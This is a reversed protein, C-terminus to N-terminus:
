AGRVSLIRNIQMDKDQWIRNVWNQMGEKFNSDALYDKGAVDEPVPLLRVRVIIRPIKGQLLQWILADPDNDPYVITVDLIGSLYDGMAALVFAVGGARPRLLNQFPSNQSLHKSSSFRTGEVFNIVSVPSRKFKECQTRTTAMDQGRLEPHKELFQRSYRKMFPFDLAWWALGLFPVWILEKKLFFKLFPIKGRFIHQLVFIDAWSRHNSFILYSAHPNLDAPGEIDWQVNQMIQFIFSNCDVWQSAFATLVLSCRYRFKPTFSIFRLFIVPIFLTIWFVTNFAVLLFTVVGFLASPLFKLM